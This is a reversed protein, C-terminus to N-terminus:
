HHEENPTKTYDLSLSLKETTNKKRLLEWCNSEGPEENQTKRYQTEMSLDAPRFGAM